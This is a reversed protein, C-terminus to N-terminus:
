LNRRNFPIFSSQYFNPRFICDIGPDKDISLRGLQIFIEKSLTIIPPDGIFRPVTSSIAERASSPLALQRIYAVFPNFSYSIRISALSLFYRNFNSKGQLYILFQHILRPDHLRQSLFFILVFLICQAPTGIQRMTWLLLHVNRVSLLDSMGVSFLLM